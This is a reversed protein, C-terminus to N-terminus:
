SSKEDILGQLEQIIKELTAENAHTVLAKHLYIGANDDEELILDLEDLIGQLEQEMHEKTKM